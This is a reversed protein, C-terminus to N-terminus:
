TAPTVPTTPPSVGAAIAAEAPTAPPGVETAPKATVNSTLGWAAEEARMRRFREQQTPTYGLNAWIQQLPVGLAAQKLQADVHEAETRTEADRWITESIVSEGRPDGLLRFALRLVEEWSEGYIRQRRRAKTVLGAEAARLAEGSPFNGMNALFYHPPTRTISALHQVLMAIQSVYGDLPTPTFEGFKAESEGDEPPPVVFLRDVGIQFPQKPKGTAVDTELRFNTIYKQGFAGFESALLMDSCAKNIADQVSIVEALESKGERGAGSLRARNPLPVIPVVGLDNPLPWPEAAEEGTVPDLIVNGHDDFLPEQRAVWETSVGQKGTADGNANVVQAVTQFKYLAEPLYVNAFLYGSDDVWRKVAARRLLRNNPATEVYCQLADEVTISPTQPNIWDGRYPSVHLYCTGKILADVHALQSEADLHNAQWIRWADDDAADVDDADASETGEPAGGAEEDDDPADEGYPFRFGEVDLREDVSDVVLASFNDAFDAFLDGFAERFKKTAFELPQDGDYYNEYRQMSAMRTDLKKLLRALWWAPSGSALNKDDLKFRDPPLPAGQLAVGAALTATM